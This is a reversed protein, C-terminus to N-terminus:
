ALFWPLRTWLHLSRVVSCPGSSRSLVPNVYHLAGLVLLLCDVIFSLWVGYITAFAGAVGSIWRHRGDDEETEVERREERLRKEVETAVQANIYAPIDRTLFAKLTDAWEHLAPTWYRSSTQPRTPLVWSKRQRQRPGLVALAIVTTYDAPSPLTNCPRPLPLSHTPLTFAFCYNSSDSTRRLFALKQFFIDGNLMEVDKDVDGSRCFSSGVLNLLLGTCPLRQRCMRGYRNACQSSRRQSCAVNFSTSHPPSPNPRRHGTAHNRPPLSGALTRRNRQAANPPPLRPEDLLSILPTHPSVSLTFM